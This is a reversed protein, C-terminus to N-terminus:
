RHSPTTAKTIYGHAVIGVREEGANRQRAVIYKQRAVACQLVLAAGFAGNGDVWGGAVKKVLGLELCGEHLHQLFAARM